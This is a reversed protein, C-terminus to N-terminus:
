QASLSREFIRSRFHKRDMRALIRAGRRGDYRALRPENRRLRRLLIRRWPELLRQQLQRRLPRRIRGDDAGDRQVRHKPRHILSAQLLRADEPPQVRGISGYSGVIGLEFESPVGRETRRRVSLYQKFLQIRVRSSRLSGVYLHKWRRFVRYRFARGANVRRM